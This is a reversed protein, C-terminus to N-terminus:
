NNLYDIAGQLIFAAANQDINKKITGGVGLIEDDPHADLVLIKMIIRRFIEVENLYNTIKKQPLFNKNKCDRTQYEYPLLIVTLDSEHLNSFNKLKKFEKKM